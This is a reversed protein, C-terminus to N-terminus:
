IERIALFIPKTPILNQPHSWIFFITRILKRLKTLLLLLLLTIVRSTVSLLFM